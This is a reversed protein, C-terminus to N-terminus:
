DESDVDPPAEEPWGRASGAEPEAARYPNGPVLARAREALRIRRARGRERDFFYVTLFATAAMM